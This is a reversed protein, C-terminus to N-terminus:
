SILGLAILKAKLDNVLAQATALDSANAPTGIPRVVPTAGFFGLKQTASTGVKTGTTTGAVVNGGEAMTVVSFTPEAVTGAISDLTVATAGATIVCTRVQPVAEYETVKYHTGAPTVSENTKLGISWLGTKSAYTTYSALVTGAASDGPELATGTVLEVTVKANPDTSGTLLREDYRM